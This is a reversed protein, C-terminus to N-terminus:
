NNVILLTLTDYEYSEWEVTGLYWNLTAICGGQSLIYLDGSICDLSQWRGGNGCDVMFYEYFIKSNGAGQQWSDEQM